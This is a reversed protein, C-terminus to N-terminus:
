ESLPKHSKVQANEYSKPIALHFGQNREAEDVSTLFLIDIRATRTYLSFGHYNKHGIKEYGHSPKYGNLTCIM